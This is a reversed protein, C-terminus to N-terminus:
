RFSTFWLSGAPPFFSSFRNVTELWGAAWTGLIGGAGIQELLQVFLHLNITM